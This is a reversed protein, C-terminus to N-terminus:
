MIVEPEWGDDGMELKVQQIDIEEGTLNCVECFRRAQLPIPIQIRGKDPIEGVNQHTIVVAKYLRIADQYEAQIQTFEVIDQIQKDEVQMVKDFDMDDWFHQENMEQGSKLKKNLLYNFKATKKMMKSFLNKSKHNIADSSLLTELNPFEHKITLQHKQCIDKLDKMDILYEMTENVAEEMNFHYGQGYINHRLMQLNTEAPFRIKYINNGFEHHQGDVRTLIAEKSTFVAIFAGNKALLQKVNSFFNDATMQTRFQYHLAFMCSIIDFRRDFHKYLPVSSVDALVFDAQFMQNRRKTNESLIDNYRRIAEAISAATIDVGSYYYTNQKAYKGLDGGKGCCLDLVAMERQKPNQSQVYQFACQILATKSWNNYDRIPLIKSSLRESGQGANKVTKYQDAVHKAAVSVSISSM